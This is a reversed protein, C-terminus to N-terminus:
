IASSVAYAVARLSSHNGPPPPQAIIAVLRMGTCPHHPTSQRFSMGVHRVLAWKLALLLTQYLLRLVVGLFAVLLKRLLSLLRVLLHVLLERLLRPAVRLHTTAINGRRWTGRLSEKRDERDDEGDTDNDEQDDDRDNDGDADKGGTVQGELPSIGSEGPQVAFAPYQVMRTM